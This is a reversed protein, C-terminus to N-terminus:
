KTGKYDPQVHFVLLTAGNDKVEAIIELELGRDDEALWYRVLRGESGIRETYTYNEIVYLAHAKGIKHHRATKTFQVRM